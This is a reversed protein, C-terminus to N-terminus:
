FKFAFRQPIRSQLFDVHWKSTLISTTELIEFVIVLNELMLVYLRITM